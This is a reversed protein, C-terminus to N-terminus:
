TKRTELYNLSIELTMMTSLIIFIMQPPLVLLSSSVSSHCCLLQLYSMPLQCLYDHPYMSRLCMPQPMLIWFLGCAFIPFSMLVNMKIVNLGYIYTMLIRLNNVFDTETIKIVKM